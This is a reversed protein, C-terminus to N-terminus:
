IHGACSNRTQVVQNAFMSFRFKLTWDAPLNRQMHCSSKELPILMKKYM